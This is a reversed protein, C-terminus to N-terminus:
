RNDEKSIGLELANEVGLKKAIKEFHMFRSAKLLILEGGQLHQDIDLILDETSPYTKCFINPDLKDRIEMALDGVLFLKNVRSDNVYQTMERHLKIADNGLEGMDGIIIVKDDADASLISFSSLAAKLSEPNSNYYDTIIKFKRDGLAGKVILGRGISLKFKSIASIVKEIDFKLEHCVVFCAAFNLAIHEPIYPMLFEIEEEFIQYKLRVKNNITEYSILQVDSNNSSINSEEDHASANINNSKSFTRINQLCLKDIKEVCRNYVNIDKSLIAIGENLDLGEFIECKADAIAEVSDFFELHAEAVNTVIAIHPSVQKTLDSIEGAANMGMEIIVYEANDPMSALTIPVGLHNNFNGHNAFCRGFKGLVLKLVEKTSTKGVSGTVAIFKASSHFRKYNALNNLAVLTDAVRILKSQDVAAVDQSIIAAGAGRMLADEVFEHGNRKGGNLAIFIDGPKINKSNFQIANARIGDDVNVELAKKLQKAQWIM